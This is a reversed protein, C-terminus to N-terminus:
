KLLMIQANLIEGNSKISGYAIPLSVNASGSTIKGSIHVNGDFEGAYQPTCLKASSGPRECVIATGESSSTHLADGTFSQAYIGWGSETYAHITTGDVSRVGLKAEPNTTGIGVNGTEHNKAAHGIFFTPKDTNFSVILSNEIENKLPNNPDYSSGLTISKPSNAQTYYGMAMSYDATAYTHRGMTTSYHGSAYTDRGFATSYNGSAMTGYGTSFSYKGIKADDWFDSYAYGARFAAKGPYWMLMPGQGETPISGQDLTGRFLVGDTGGIEFPGAGPGGANYAKNLSNGATDTAATNLVTGDSFKIGKNTYLTDDVQLAKTIQVDGEFQAAKGNDSKGYVGIGNSSEGIVGKGQATQGHVGSGRTSHAWLATHEESFAIVAIASDSHAKLASGGGNNTIDFANDATAVTGKYPLSLSGNGGAASIRLTNGNKDISVNDGAQLVVDDKIANINRVLQGKAVKASTVSSDAVMRATFSYASSTLPTRPTFEAEGNVSIGLWYPKDFPIDLRDMAGLQVNILGNKVSDSQVEMWIAEGGSQKDYIKFTLVYKDDAPKQGAKDSLLGQFSLTQPIQSFSIEIGVIFIVMLFVKCYPRM